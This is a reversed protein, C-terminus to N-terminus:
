FPQNVKIWSKSCKADSKAMKKQAYEFMISKSSRHTHKSKRQIQQWLSNSKQLVYRRCLWHRHPVLVQLAIHKEDEAAKSKTYHQFYKEQPISSFISIAKSETSWQHYKQTSILNIQWTLDEEMLNKGLSEM